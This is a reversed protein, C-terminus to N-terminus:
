WGHVSATEFAQTYPHDPCAGTNVPRASFANDHM